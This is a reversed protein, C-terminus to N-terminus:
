TFFPSGWFTFMTNGSNPRRMLPVSSVLRWTSDLTLNYPPSLRGGKFGRRRNKSLPFTEPLPASKLWTTKISREYYMFFICSSTNPQM